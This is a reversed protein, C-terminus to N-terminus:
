TNTLPLDTVTALSANEEKAGQAAAEVVKYADGARIGAKEVTYTAAAVDQWATGTGLALPLAGFLAPTKIAAVSGTVGLLIRPM